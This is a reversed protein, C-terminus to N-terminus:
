RGPSGNVYVRGHQDCVGYDIRRVLRVGQNAPHVAVRFDVKGLFARGDDTIPSATSVQLGTLHLELEQIIGAGTLTVPTVTQGVPVALDQSLIQTGTDLKPDLGAYQWAVTAPCADEQGTFTTVGTTDAFTQYTINYAGASTTTTVPM